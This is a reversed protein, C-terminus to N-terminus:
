LWKRVVLGVLKTKRSAMEIALVGNSIWDAILDAAAKLSLGHTGALYRGLYRAKSQPAHSFPNGEDFRRQVEKLVERCQEFSLTKESARATDADGEIQVLLGTDDRLYTHTGHDAEDNSKVVAGRVVRGREFPVAFQDCIPRADEDDVKWLAYSLRAGDVLATTGRIAERAGDGDVIRNMGDKRMHHTVLITAGTAASLQAMASWFFQAAAPDANVDALVFAQLPDIVVLRLDPIACLQRKLEEFFPTLVLTKGNSAILPRAGGADPMPLIILRKPHRLRRNEPDIRSLRRHIADFSDEATVIVATGQTVVRGGLILRPQELGAVGCAIHLALDLGLFSKGLGGMAALLAPIGLPITGKCLWVIERPEGSYRDATWQMLDIEAPPPKDEVAHTPNPVNWKRRAGDIMRVLDRRTQDVTFGPLTIGEALALIEADALGRAIWHAVLRVVNDHWGKGSRIEALAEAVSFSGIALGQATGPRAIAAATTAAQPGEPAKAPPPLLPLPEQFREAIWRPWYASPRSDAPVHTETRELVRGEKVPWAVSGGIRMIRGPNVVAADGGLARQIAVCVARHEAPDRSAEALRWWMQARTFPHRGTVITMHPMAGVERCRAIAATVVDDDIDAWAFPAAHFHEDKGRGTTGPARLAAGVYVNVMPTRNLQAARDALEDLEHTGFYESQRIAHPPRADSWTLEILGDLAGDYAGGFITELYLGIANRDRELIPQPKM